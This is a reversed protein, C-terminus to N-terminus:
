SIQASRLNRLTRLNPNLGAAERGHHDVLQRNFRM